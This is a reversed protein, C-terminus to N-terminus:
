VSQNQKRLEVIRRQVTESAKAGPAPPEVFFQRDPKRRFQHVLQHVSGVTYGFRGAVEKAPLQDVFFARLAEYQRHTSNGPALFVQALDM